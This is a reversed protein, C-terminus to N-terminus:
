DQHRFLKIATVLDVARQLPRDVLGEASPESDIEPNTGAVLAAENLKARETEFVFPAMGKELAEKMIATRTEDDQAVEIDPRLGRPYVSQGAVRVEASAFRLQRDGGLPLATFEVCRGSSRTGVLLARANWRLTAALAEAAGATNEDIIVIIVGRFLPAGESVFDRSAAPAAGALSFLATGAPVFRESAQAALAFDTTEPTARLDLIVGHVKKESFERLATDLQGINEAILSGLRIYGARGDLIESRFPSEAAPAPQADALEAGPSLNALLGRLTARTLNTADLSPGRVHNQRLADIAKQMQAADLSDLPDAPTGSPAPGEQALATAAVAALLLVAGRLKM